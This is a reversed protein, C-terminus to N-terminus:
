CNHSSSKSHMAALHTSSCLPLDHNEPLLKKGMVALHRRYIDIDEGLTPAKARVGWAFFADDYRQQYVRASNHMQLLQERTM